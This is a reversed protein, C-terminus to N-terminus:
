PADVEPQGPEDRAGVQIIGRLDGATLPHRCLTTRPRLLHDLAHLLGSLCRDSAWSKAATEFIVTMLTAADTLRDLRISYLKSRRYAPFTLELGDGALRWGNWRGDTIDRKM